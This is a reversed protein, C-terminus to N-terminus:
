ANVEVFKGWDRPLYKARSHKDGGAARKLEDILGSASGRDLQELNKITVNAKQALTMIFNAQKDTIQLKTWSNGWDYQPKTPDYM